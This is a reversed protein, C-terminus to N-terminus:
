RFINTYGSNGCYNMQTCVNVPRPQLTDALLVHTSKYIFPDDAIILFHYQGCRRCLTHTKNHRKGFSSTGKALS